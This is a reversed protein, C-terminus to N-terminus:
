VQRGTGEPNLPKRAGIDSDPVRKAIRYDSQKRPPIADNFVTEAAMRQLGLQLVGNRATPLGQGCPAAQTRPKRPGAADADPLIMRVLLITQPLTAWSQAVTQVWKTRDPVFEGARLSNVRDLGLETRDPWPSVSWRM